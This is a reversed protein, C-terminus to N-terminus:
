KGPFWVIGGNLRTTFADIDPDVSVNGFRVSNLNGFTLDIGADLALQRSFFYVIGGGFGLGGGSISVDIRNANEAPDGVELEIETGAGSLGVELFPRFPSEGSGFTFRAALDASALTYSDGEDQSMSAGDINFLISVLNSIGYGLTLGLGGGADTQDIFLDAQELSWSTGNLHLGLWFGKTHFDPPPDSQALLSTPVLLALILIARNM